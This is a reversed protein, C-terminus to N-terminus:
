TINSLKEFREKESKEYSIRQQVSSLVKNIQRLELMLSEAIVETQLEEDTYEKLESNAKEEAKGIKHGEDIYYLKKISFAMKREFYARLHTGKSRSTITALNVSLLSLKCQFNILQELTAKSYNQTYWNICKEISEIIESDQKDTKIM